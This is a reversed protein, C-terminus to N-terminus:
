QPTFSTQAHYGNVIADVVVTYGSTAGGINFTMQAIGDDGTTAPGLATDKTRYHAVGSATAGSVIRNGVILRVCLTTNSYRAPIPVTMWAQAGEIPAPANQLCIGQPPALTPTPPVLTPMETPLPMPTNQPKTILPLYLCQSTTCDPIQAAVFGLGALLATVFVAILAVRLVRM